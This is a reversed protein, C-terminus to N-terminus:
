HSACSLMCSSDRVLDFAVGAERLVVGAGRLGFLAGEVCVM